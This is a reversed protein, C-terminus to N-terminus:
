ADPDSRDDGGREESQAADRAANWRDLRRAVLMGVGVGAGGIITIAGLFVVLDTM